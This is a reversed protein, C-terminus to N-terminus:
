NEKNWVRGLGNELALRGKERREKERGEKQSNQNVWVMVLRSLM